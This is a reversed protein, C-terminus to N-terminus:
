SKGPELGRQKGSRLGAMEPNKMLSKLNGPPRSAFSLALRGKIQMNSQKKM